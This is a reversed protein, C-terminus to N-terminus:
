NGVRFRVTKLAKIQNQVMNTAPSNDLTLSLTGTKKCTTKKHSFNAMLAVRCRRTKLPEWRAYSPSAKVELNHATGHAGVNGIKFGVM